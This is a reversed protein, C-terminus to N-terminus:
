CARGIAATLVFDLDDTQAATSLGERVQVELIRGAPGVKEDQQVTFVGAGDRPPVPSCEIRVLGDL